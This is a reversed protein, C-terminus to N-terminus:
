AMQSIYDRWCAGPHARPGGGLPIHGTCRVWSADKDSPGLLLQPTAIRRWVGAGWGREAWREAVRELFSIESKKTNKHTIYVGVRCLDLCWVLWLSAPDRPSAALNEPEGCSYWFLHLSLSQAPWETHKAHRFRVDVIKKVVSTWWHICCLPRPNFGAM